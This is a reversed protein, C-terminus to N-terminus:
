KGNGTMRALTANLEAQRQELESALEGMGARRCLKVLEDLDRVSWGVIRRAIDLVTARREM